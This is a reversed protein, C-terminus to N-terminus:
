RSRGKLKEFVRMEEAALEPQKTRQYAQALRYHATALEPELQIARRLEPIAEAYRQQESLLIGLQLFAKTLKPDLAVARRLLTEVRKLDSGDSGASQGKWLSMAYYFNAAPNRPQAKVFRAMRETVEV